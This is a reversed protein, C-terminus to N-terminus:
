LGHQHMGGFRTVYKFYGPTAVLQDVAERLLSPQMRLELWADRIAIDIAKALRPQRMISEHAFLVSVQTRTCNRPDPITVCDNFWENFQYHPFFLIARKSPDGSQLASLVEGPEMHVRETRRSSLHGAELMEEFVQLPLSPEDGILLFEGEHAATKGAVAQKSAVIRQSLKPLFMLPEYEVKKRNKMVAAATAAVLCCLEPAEVFDAEVIRRATEVMHPHSLDIEFHYGKAHKLYQFIAATAPITIPVTVRIPRDPCLLQRFESTHEVAGLLEASSLSEDIESALVIGPGATRTFFSSGAIQRVTSAITQRQFVDTECLMQQAEQCLVQTFRKKWSSVNNARMATFDATASIRNANRVARAKRKNGIWPKELVAALRHLESLELVQKGAVSIEISLPDWAAENLSVATPGRTRRHSNTQRFLRQALPKGQRDFGFLDSLWVPQKNLAGDFAAAASGSYGELVSQKRPAGNARGTQASHAAQRVLLLSLARVARSWEFTGDCAFAGASKGRVCLRESNLLPHSFEVRYLEPSRFESFHLSIAPM